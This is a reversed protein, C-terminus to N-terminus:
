NCEDTVQIGYVEVECLTLIAVRDPIIISIYRGALGNCCITSVSGETSNTITGCIPDHKGHGDKSDGVHIQAGELREGCCDERNKVIVTSVYHRSELDVRWWPEREDKTHTCSYHTLTGDCKGDVAKEAGVKVSGFEENTSSQTAPHGQAVNRAGPPPTCDQAIVEVECLTLIGRRGPIVITVYRGQLGKCCITSVSGLGTNTITGCIPNHKGHDDLSDGVRIQAGELRQGCCDERNKVIVTSVSQRSGLDVRWWPEHDCQTHTCSHDNLIGSHKGDVAKGPEYQDNTSSQIALRGLALNQGGAPPTCKESVGTGALIGIAMLLHWLFEM